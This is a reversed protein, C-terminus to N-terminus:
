MYDFLLLGGLQNKGQIFFMDFIELHRDFSGEVMDIAYFHRANILRNCLSQGGDIYLLLQFLKLSRLLSLSLQFKM